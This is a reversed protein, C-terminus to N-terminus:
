RFCTSDLDCMGSNLPIEPIVYWLPSSGKEIYSLASETDIRLEKGALTAVTDRAALFGGWESARHPYRRCLKQCNEALHEVLTSLLREQFSAAEVAEDIAKEIEKLLDAIGEGSPKREPACSTAVAGKCQGNPFVKRAVAEAKVKEDQLMHTDMLECRTLVPLITLSQGRELSLCAQKMCAVEADAKPIGAAMVLVVIHPALKPKVGARVLKQFYNEVIAKGREATWGDTDVLMLRKHSSSKMPYVACLRTSDRSTGVPAEPSEDTFLHERLFNCTSSKGRGPCGILLVHHVLYQERTRKMVREAVDARESDSAFPAFDKLVAHLFKGDVVAQESLAAPPRGSSRGFCEKEELWTTDGTLRRVLGNLCQEAVFRSSHERLPHLLPEFGSM